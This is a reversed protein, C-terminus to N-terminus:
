GPCTEYNAFFSKPKEVREGYSERTERNLAEYVVFDDSLYRVYYDTAGGVRVTWKPDWKRHVKDGVKLPPPSEPTECSCPM